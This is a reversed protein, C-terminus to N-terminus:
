KVLKVVKIENGSKIQLFYVGSNLMSVDISSGNYGDMSVILKGFIDTLIIKDINVSNENQIKIYDNCPNPYITYATIENKSVLYPIDEYKIAAVPTNPALAPNFDTYTCGFFSGNVLKTSIGNNMYWQAGNKASWTIWYNPNGGEGIFENLGDFNNDYYLSNLFGG